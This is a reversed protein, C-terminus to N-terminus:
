NNKIKISSYVEQYKEVMINLSYNKSIHLFASETKLYVSKYNNYIYEINRACDNVNMDEFFSGYEGQQIIEFPGDGTSVLVPIKAAMGEAVTLGFGERYSPHCMLNYDKLHTYIYTRNKLGLFNINDEIDYSQVLNKLFDESPGEGIFDVIINSYGKDKLLKISKILLDQGKEISNLRAVNVIRFKNSDNSDSTRKSIASINIGNPITIVKTNTRKKIDKAVADSIAILLDVNNVYTLPHKTCHITMIRKGKFFPFILRPVADSHIHIIDPRAKILEWNFKLIPFISRSGQKRRLKKICVRKDINAILSKDYSNNIIILTIDNQKIQENVIDILMTEAGGVNFSLICHVIRM